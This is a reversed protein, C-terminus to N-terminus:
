NEPRGYKEIMNSFQIPEAFKELRGDLIDLDPDFLKHEPTASYIVVGKQPYRRKIAAALGVGENKFQLAKGVGIIDVFIINANRIEPADLNATDGIKKINKWGSKKLPKIVSPMKDDDIFLIQCVSKLDVIREAEHENGIPGQIPPNIINNNGIVNVSGKQSGGSMNAADQGSDNSIGNHDAKQRTKKTISITVAAGVGIIAIISAIIGLTSNFFDLM